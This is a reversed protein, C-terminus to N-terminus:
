WSAAGATWYGWARTSRAANADVMAPTIASAEPPLTLVGAPALRILKYDVKNSRYAFTNDVLSTQSGTKVDPLKGSYYGNTLGPIFADGDRRSYNWAGGTDPYAGNKAYHKEIAAKLGKMDTDIISFHARDQIAKYSTTTIAVLIGLVAIVVVLEVLTFGATKIYSVYAKM